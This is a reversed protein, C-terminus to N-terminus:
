GLCPTLKPRRDPTLKPRRNVLLAERAGCVPQAVVASTATVLVMAAVLSTKTLM